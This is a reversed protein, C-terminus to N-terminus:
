KKLILKKNFSDRDIGRVNSAFKDFKKMPIDLQQAQAAYNDTIGYKSTILTYPNPPMTLLTNYKDIFEALNSIHKSGIIHEMRLNGFGKGIGKISADSM